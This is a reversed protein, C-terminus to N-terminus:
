LSQGAASPLLPIVDTSFISAASAASLAISTPEFKKRKKRDLSAEMLSIACQPRVSYLLDFLVRFNRPFGIVTAFSANAINAIPTHNRVEDKLGVGLSRHSCERIRWDM